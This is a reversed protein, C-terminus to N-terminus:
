SNEQSDLLRLCCGVRDVADMDALRAITTEIASTAAHHTIFFLQAEDGVGVQELSQISIGSEGFVQAVQALVGPRDSVDLSVYFRSVVDATDILDIDEDISFPVDHRASARNRVTAIIDGLVATATPEGGAGPGSWVLPGAKHGEVMVANMAGGIAALPHSAPVLTPGVFRAVGREGVRQAVAILKIVYGMKSVFRIDGDRIATIGATSISAGDMATGFALSSLIVLKAAADHGDVDASPDSEAYGLRQAEALVTAYDSGRETMTTLIFNTTGNVIGMVRSVREGALSTRLARIIPIAGGVAAEYMLDVKAGHAIAALRSGHRAMLAKNATVVSIGSRLAAEIVEAMADPDGAVEVLVDLGRSLLDDLAGRWLEAPLEPRAQDLHRVAVGVVEMPVTSADLLAAHRSPDTLLGVVARGVFGAGVLGIRSSTM